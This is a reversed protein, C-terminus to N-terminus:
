NWSGELYALDMRTWDDYDRILRSGDSYDVTSYMYGYNMCSRYPRALWWGIQWPYISWRNHGPIPWFGLTHGTEHMYASAYVTDRDLFPILSKEEMGTSSVQFRNNGFACGSVQEFRYLLVGYHFVGRRWSAGNLFYNYYIQDLEGRTTSEDFLIMDSGSGDLSGDDLHYVINQRNFATFLLEKAGDPMISEEGTPSEKMQDLETFIDKRFPDSGYESTLYEEVNDISDEEPDIHAHNDSEFPDYGWKWEWEIPIDDNDDDDGTNDIEPDTGYENVEIWYPISDGDFDNQYVNFWLECDL